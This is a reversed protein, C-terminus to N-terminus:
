LVDDHVMGVLVCVMSYLTHLAIFYFCSVMRIRNFRENKNVSQESGM